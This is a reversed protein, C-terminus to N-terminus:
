TSFHISYCQKCVGVCLNCTIQTCRSTYFPVDVITPFYNGVLTVSSFYLHVLDDRDTLNENRSKSHKYIAHVSNNTMM